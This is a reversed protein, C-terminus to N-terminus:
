WPLYSGAAMGREIRLYGLFPNSRLEAELTTDPGHGSHVVLHGPLEMLRRLSQKAQDPDSFPFDTRGISGNFLTDGVFIHNGTYYCGQGPTHGPTSLFRVTLHGVRLTDGDELERDIRGCSRGLQPMGFMEGQRPLLDFLPRELAPLYTVAEPFVRQLSQLAGAHDIHAHTLLIARVQPPPSMSAYLQPLQEGEGTDVIAAAGSDPDEFLWTNVQFMGVTFCRVRM